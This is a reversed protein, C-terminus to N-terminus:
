KKPVVKPYKKHMEERLSSVDRKLSEGLISDKRKESNAIQSPTMKGYAINRLRESRSYNEDSEKMSKTEAGILSDSIKLVRSVPVKGSKGKIPQKLKIKAM